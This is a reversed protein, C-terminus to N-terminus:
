GHISASVIIAIGIIFAAGLIALAINKEELIKKWLNEPTIKEIIIFSVVLILIGVVSFIVSDALSRFLSQLMLM